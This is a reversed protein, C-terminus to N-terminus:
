NSKDKRGRPLVTKADELAQFKFIWAVAAFVAVGVTGGALLGVWLSHTSAVVLISAIFALISAGVTPALDRMQVFFGAGILKGTYYTNIALAVVSCFVQGYCIAEIGKPLTVMLVSIGMVKKVIELKLFLDSRGKVQLLNLNIAHIPYWMRAFCVVQLLVVCGMWKEGLLLAVLPKAVGALVMMLPFVFLAAVRLLRRYNLALREDEDQIKALVPFSVKQLVTTISSSPLGAMMKAKSYLGLSASTFVKGIVITHLNNYLTDILSSALMKSGFDFLDHFSDKSFGTVPHWRVKTWLLINTVVIGTLNMVALAWVGWGMFALLVGLGGSVINAVVSIAAKTKFDIRITLQAQQVMTFAGLVVGLGVVKLLPSLVPENYFKAVYPSILVLLAYCTVSVAINFYFMTSCDAETRNNKRVLAAMFGSNVFVNSVSIFVTLMAITGYAEPGLLRALIISFVFTVAMNVVNDAAGWAFGRLAKEKM